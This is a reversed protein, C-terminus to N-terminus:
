VYIIILKRVGIFLMFLQWFFWFIFLAFLRLVQRFITQYIIMSRILHLAGLTVWDKIIVVLFLFVIFRLRNRMTGLVGVFNLLYNFSNSRKLIKDTRWKFRLGLFLYLFILILYTLRELLRRLIRNDMRTQGLFLAIPGIFRFLRTRIRAALYSSMQYMLHVLFNLFDVFAAFYFVVRGHGFTDRSM